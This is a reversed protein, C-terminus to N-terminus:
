NHLYSVWIMKSHFEIKKLPLAELKSRLIDIGNGVYNYLNELDFFSTVDRGELFLKHEYQEFKKYQYIRGGIVVINFALQHFLNMLTIDKDETILERRIQKEM